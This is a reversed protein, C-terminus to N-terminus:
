PKLTKDPECPKDIELESRIEEFQGASNKRYRKSGSRAQWKGILWGEFRSIVKDHLIWAILGLLFGTFIERLLPFRVEPSVRGPSNLMPYAAPGFVCVCLWPIVKNTVPLIRPIYSVGVVLVVTFVEPGLSAITKIIDNLYEM